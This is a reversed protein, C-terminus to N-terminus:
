LGHDDDGEPKAVAAEARALEARADLVAQAAADIAAADEVAGLGRAAHAAKAAEHEAEAGPVAAKATEVSAATAEAHAQKLPDPQGHAAVHADHAGRARDAKVQLDSVENRANMMATRTHQVDWYPREAAELVAEAAALRAKAEEVTLPPNAAEYEAQRLAESSAAHAARLDDLTPKLNM